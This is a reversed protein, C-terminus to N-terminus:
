GKGGHPGNWGTGAWRVDRGNLCRRPGGTAMGDTKALTIIVRMLADEDGRLIPTYRQTGSWQRWLRCAHRESM